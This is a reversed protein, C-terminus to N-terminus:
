TQLAVFVAGGHHVVCHGLNGGADAQALRFLELLVLEDVAEHAGVELGPAEHAVVQGEGEEYEDFYQVADYNKGDYVAVEVGEQALNLHQVHPRAEHRGPVHKRRGQAEDVVVFTQVLGVREVVLVVPRAVLKQHVVHVVGEVLQLGVAVRGEVVM